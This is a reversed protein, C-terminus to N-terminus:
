PEARSAGISELVALHGALRLREILWESGRTTLHEDDWQLPQGDVTAACSGGGCLQEFVSAYAVGQATTAERMAADVAGTDRAAYADLPAGKTRLLMPVTERYEVIPGLVLLRETSSRLREFTAGLATADQQEWAASLVIADFRHRALLETFRWRNLAACEPANARTVIDLLPRCGGASVAIFNLNPFSHALGPLLHDSHSDGLLLVTPGRTLCRQEFSSAGDFCKAHRVAARSREGLADMQALEDPTIGFRQPAGHLFHATLGVALAAAMVAGAVVFTRGLHARARATRLPQEIFRWSLYSVALSGAIVMVQDTAQLEPRWARVFVIIPWHWLYLSYSIEGVMVLPRLQLLRHVVTPGERGTAIVLLAGLCPPIATAGPFPTAEDYCTVSALILCLGFAALVTRLRLDAIRRRSSLALLSGLLLEWARHTVMYFSLMPERRVGDVALALSLAAIVLLWPAYRGSLFRKIALLLPPLVLYFQEEVSLSWTHLLPKSHAAGEFYGSERWFLINSSFLTSAVLSQGFDRFAVPLLVLAAVVGTVAVVAFLAPFIRLVRRQYFRVISFRGREIDDSVIGTILFGSIVFFVDVGVFGGSAQVVQAHFLLVALVAIARLGDIDARYTM